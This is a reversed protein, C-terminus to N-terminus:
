TKGVAKVEAFRLVKGKWYYGPRVEEVVLGEPRHPDSIAELVTMCNPDAHRGVCQMRIISLEDMARQLRSQVLDYGELLSDFINRQTDLTHESYVAKAAHHWPRCLLRRWWPQTNYLEDFLKRVTELEGCVDELVRRRASEIARRGRVLAEDMDILAEVPPRAAKDAAGAEDAEVARMQEIAAQMSLLTAENREETGRAAKTLLKVEHRMATLQEVVQLLGVSQTPEDDALAAEVDLADAEGRTEDLWQRFRTLVQESDLWDTM